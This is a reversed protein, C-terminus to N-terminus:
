RRRRRRLLAEGQEGHCSACEVSLPRYRIHGAEEDLTHCGSCSVNKHAEDLPFRSHLDHDFRLDTFSTAGRHCDACDKARPADFQDGHPTEHCSACSTGAAASWTRGHEDPRRLPAHCDACDAAAHAGELRWGTWVGHDFGHPLDRFTTTDHCRACDSRGAVTARLGEGDFRGQHVDDHCSACGTVEGWLEAVVGFTRGRADPEAARDHCATCEAAAHAGTLGYGTWAGHEFRVEPVHSFATTDHCRACDGHEPTPSSDQAAAALREDFFGLHPDEHCSECTHDVGHFVRPADPAPTDHCANCDLELHAGDLPLDTQAHAEEDFGHPAFHTSAHCTRCGVTDVAGGLLMAAPSFSLGAFQGGHPDEHCSACGEADRGPYRDPYALAPDHCSACDVDAHPAALPFGSLAHEQPELHAAGDTFSTHEPAHCGSCALGREVGALTALAPLGALAANGQVFGQDHPQEHCGTCGRGEPRRAELGRLVELSHSTGEGHCERCSVEGHAGVLPLFRDHGEFVHTEFSEQVHCVVCSQQFTGEHPDEHCTACSQVLGLYRHEGEPVPNAEAHEHCATCDQELHAGGMAFGVLNHDFASVDPVGAREFSRANVSMFGAGHHESHCRACDAALAPELIGHLGLSGDIHAQITDHCELCSATMTSTWGGHCDSCSTTSALGDVRGHAASLEGPATRGFDVIAASLVVLLSLAGILTKTTPVRM